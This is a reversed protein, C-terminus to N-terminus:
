TQAITDRVKNLLDVSLRKSLTLIISCDSLQTMKYGIFKLFDLVGNHEICGLRSKLDPHLNPLDIEHGKDHVLDSVIGHLALLRDVASIQTKKTGETIIDLYMDLAEEFDEM